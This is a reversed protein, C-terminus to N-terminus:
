NKKKLKIRETDAARIRVLAVYLQFIPFGVFQSYIARQIDRASENCRGTSRIVNWPIQIRIRHRIMRVLLRRNRSM